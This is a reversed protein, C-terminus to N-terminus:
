ESVMYKKTVAKKYPLDASFCYQSKDLGNIYYVDSKRYLLINQKDLVSFNIIFESGPVKRTDLNVVQAAVDAAVTAALLGPTVRSSAKEVKYVGYGLAYAMSFSGPYPDFGRHAQHEVLQLSWNIKTGDYKDNVQIGSNMLYTILFSRFAQTFSSNDNPVISVSHGLALKLQKSKKIESTLDKALIEWHHTAQLKKQRSFFFNESKPQKACGMFIIGLCFLILIIHKQYLQGM